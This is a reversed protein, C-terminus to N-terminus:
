DAFYRKPPQPNTKLNNDHLNADKIIDKQLLKCCEAYLADALVKDYIQENGQYFAFSKIHKARKEPNAIVDKTWKYLPGKDEGNEEVEKCYNCFADLTCVLRVDFKQVLDFIKQTVKTKKNERIDKSVDETVKIRVQYFIKKIGM